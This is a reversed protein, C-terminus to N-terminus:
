ASTLKKIASPGDIVRGIGKAWPKGNRRSSYASDLELLTLAQLWDTKNRFQLVVYNNAEDLETAFKIEGEITQQDKPLRIGDLRLESFLEPHDRELEKVIPLVAPTYDGQGAKNNLFLNLAKEEALPLDVYVCPILQHKKEKLILFRQNGGVVHSTKKNVLIPEVLGFRELSFELARRASKSITRPNYPAPKIKQVPVLVSKM